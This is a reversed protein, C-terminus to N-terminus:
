SAEKQSKTSVSSVSGRLEIEVRIHILFAMIHHSLVRPEGIVVVLNITLPYAIILEKLSLNSLPGNDSSPIIPREEEAVSDM